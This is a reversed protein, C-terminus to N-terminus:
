CLIHPYHLSISKWSFFFQNEFFSVYKLFLIYNGKYAQSHKM